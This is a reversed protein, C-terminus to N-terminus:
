PLKWSDKKERYVADPLQVMVPHRDPDLWRALDKMVPLSMATCGATGVPPVKWVHLFICSGSGKKVPMANHEVVAGISYLNDKRLMMESSKWDVDEMDSTDVIRNYFRSAPDDVCEIRDTLALYEMKFKGAQAGEGYGFLRSIRFMGAPARGDGEVKVPDREGAWAHLGRGWGLGNRGVRVHVADGEQAWSKQGPEKAYRRLEGASSNWDDVLVLILQGSREIGTIDRTRSNESLHRKDNQHYHSCSFM